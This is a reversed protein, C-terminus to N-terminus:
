HYYYYYYYHYHYHYHYIQLIRFIHLTAAALLLTYSDLLSM